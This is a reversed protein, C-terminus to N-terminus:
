RAGGAATLWFSAEIIPVDTFVNRSRVADGFARWNRVTAPRVRAHEIRGDEDLSVWALSEGRASEAWGLGIGAPHTDAAPPVSTPLPGTLEAILGASSEIETRFIEYRALADGGRQLAVNNPTCFKDRPHDRRSDIDLGAARAIPGVAGLAAAKVADLVGTSELRDLFSNTTSLADTVRRLDAIIAPLDHRLVDLNPTDVLEGIDVVDFLYRHGFAEANLRLLRELVIEVNAQGVALGCAQCLAALAATHNYIRELELAVNRMRTTQQSIAMGQANEVAMAFAMGHAVASFGEIRQVLFLAQAPYLGRLRWEIGRHKHWTFLYLDVVEEGSTVLGFYLSEAGAARVPGFPFEFAQGGIVHPSRTPGREETSRSGLRPIDSDPQPPLAVRNLHEVGIPRL